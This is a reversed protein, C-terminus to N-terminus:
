TPLSGDARAATERPVTVTVTTGAGQESDITFDAGILEARERMGQLGFRGHPVPETASFGMGDDSIVMCIGKDSATLSLSLHTAGAHRVVNDMAEHAIRYLGQEVFPVLESSTELREPINVTVVLGAREGQSRALQRLALALGLDELPSARLAGIARRAEGLGERTMQLSRDLMQRAADPDADWLSRVAELQVAVASLSHALTDHLERALRNRERSVTLQELTTAYDALRAHAQALAARQARQETMLRDVVYGLLCFLLARVTMLAIATGPRFRGVVALALTLVFDFATTTACFLLVAKLGYQWAVVVLPILLVLILQWADTTAAVGSVGRLMRLATTLAQELIPGFSAIAIAFPLYAEGSQQHLWSLLILLGVSEVIGLFPYRLVQPGQRVVQGLVVILLVVLRAAVFWRFVQLLGPELARQHRM